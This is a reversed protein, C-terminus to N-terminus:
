FDGQIMDDYYKETEAILHLEAEVLELRAAFLEEKNYRKDKRIGTLVLGAIAACGALFMIVAPVKVAVILLAMVMVILVSIGIRSAKNKKIGKRIDEVELEAAQKRFEADRVSM